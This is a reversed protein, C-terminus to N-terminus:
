VMTHIRTFVVSKATHFQNFELQRFFGDVDQSRVLAIRVPWIYTHSGLISETIRLYIGTKQVSVFIVDSDPGIAM